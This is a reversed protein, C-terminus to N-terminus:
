AVVRRVLREEASRGTIRRAFHISVFSVLSALAFSLSLPTLTGDFQRDITSGILSGVVMPAMGLLAAGSGAVSGLPIMAATNANIMTVQGMMLAVLMVPAFVAFPPVGGTALAVVLMIVSAMVFGSTTAVLMRDLGVRRVVRGNSIAGAALGIAMAGFIVPFWDGLDFVTDFLNESSALYSLFVGNAITIAVLYSMTGPTTLVIRWSAAIERPNLERRQDPALTAPLRISVALVIVGAVVCMLVSYRWSGLAVMAAGASPAVMPVLLFIAMINSMQRAMEEGEFADRIMATVAVRPGAAGLGWVFRALAMTGLSPALATALAGVIYIAVGGWLVPRRGFRDALLGAPIQGVGLGIIFATVLVAVGTSDPELDFQERISDFAPLMSDIALATLAISASMVVTFAMSGPRLTRKPVSATPTEIM